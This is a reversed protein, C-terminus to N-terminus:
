EIKTFKVYIKGGTYGGPPNTLAYACAGYTPIKYDETKYRLWDYSFTAKEGSAYINLDDYNNLLGCTSKSQGPCKSYFESKSEYFKRSCTDTGSTGCFSNTIGPLCCKVEWPNTFESKNNCLYYDSTACSFCSSKTLQSQSSGFLSATVFFILSTKM